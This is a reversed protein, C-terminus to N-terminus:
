GKGVTIMSADWLICLEEELSTDMVGGCERGGCEDSSGRGEGNNMNCVEVKSSEEGLSNVGGGQGQELANGEAHPSVYQVTKVLLALVWAKSFVTDAIRDNDSAEESVPLEPPCEQPVSPESRTQIPSSSTLPPSPNRYDSM